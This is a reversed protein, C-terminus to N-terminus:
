PMFRDTFYCHLPHPHIGDLISDIMFSANKDSYSLATRVIETLCKNWLCAFLKRHHKRYRQYRWHSPRFSQFFEFSRDLDLSYVIGTKWDVAIQFDHWLSPYLQLVDRQLRLGELVRNLFSPTVISADHYYGDPRVLKHFGYFDEMKKIVKISEPARQIRQVVIGTTAIANKLDDLIDQMRHTEADNPYKQQYLFDLKEAFAKQEKREKGVIFIPPHQSLYFHNFQSFNSQLTMALNWGFWMGHWLTPTASANSPSQLRNRARSVPQYDRNPALLWGQTPDSQSHFFCKYTGCQVQHGRFSLDATVAALMSPMSTNSSLPLSPVITTDNAALYGVAVHSINGFTFSTQMMSVSAAIIDHALNSNWAADFHKPTPYITATTTEPESPASRVALFTSPTQFPDNQYFFAYNIPVIGPIADRSRTFIYYSHLVLSICVSVFIQQIARNQPM